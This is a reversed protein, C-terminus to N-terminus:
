AHKKAFDLYARTSNEIFVRTDEALNGEGDFLNHIGALYVEPQNMTILNLFGFSQRLAHNGM